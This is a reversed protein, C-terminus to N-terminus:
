GEVEDMLLIVGRVDPLGATLPTCTVRVQIARGRRNTAQVLVQLHESEGQLCARIPARLQEVPLGSDLNLFNRQLVEEPRLGWMEEAHHNWKRVHLDQDVVVVGSRLGRLISELFANLDAMEDGRERSEENLAQLEENTSQLEENMTELEENTSQLEENTTELEEVTSQLEENTTELEENTSQLEELATQLEQQIRQVEGQLQRERTVDSFFLSAGAFGGAGDSIPVVLLDVYIESDGPVFWRGDSMGVSRGDAFARELCSRLEFPRYSLELDKLPRGLDRTGLGFLARLRQNAHVVTAQRDVILQAVPGIEAATERLRWDQGGTGGEGTRAAPTVPREALPFRELKTFLRRKSDLTSFTAAHSLLTEAKGLCLTGGPALAFHFRSVIRGQAEANFYMLVNRCLLLNVRSIPADQILDHRGFIVSRRLDKGVTYRDEHRDFYKAVLEPAVNELAREPYVALRAENLAEEDVDTAYIKVRDRLQDLGFREALLMAISYAEEGSACGASWIRLPDASDPSASLEALLHSGLYEWVPPDRFFTTVNILITNFLRTFEEPVVELFDQYNAYGAAGVNQMRVNIRRMLSTRKYATFDFGRNQKLYLLLADFEREAEPPVSGPAPAAPDGTQTM